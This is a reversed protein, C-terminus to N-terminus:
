AEEDEADASADAAEEAVAEIAEVAEDSHSGWFPTNRGACARVASLFQESTSEFLSM